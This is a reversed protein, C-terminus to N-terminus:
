PEVFTLDRIRDPAYVDKYTNYISELGEIYQKHYLQVQEPTPNEVKPVPIPTGVVSVIRRRYPLIGMNYTFIGRGHLLPPSFSALKQFWNQFGRLLSGKPNPVQDWLDNEGFSMVPVLSAGARLAVKVFGFRKTLVLDNTGPTANLSEAAGGVVIMIANGQGEKLIYDCSERSACCIGLHIIIERFFPMKFNTALTMLRLDIGKFLESFGNAETAFNTWAGLSIIGHPHYGFVYNKTPDLDVTKILAVPFFDGLWKWLSLRRFWMVKRGGTVSSRDLMMYVLYALAFPLLMPDILM